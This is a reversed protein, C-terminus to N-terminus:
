ISSTRDIQKVCRRSKCTPSPCCGAPLAAAAVAHHHCINVAPPPARARGATDTTLLWGPGTSHMVSMRYHLMPRDPAIPLRDSCGARAVMAPRPAKRRAAARPSDAYAACQSTYRMPSACVRTMAADYMSGPQACPGCRGDSPLQSTGAAAHGAAQCRRPLLRTLPMEPRRGPLVNSATSDGRRSILWLLCPGATYCQARGISNIM